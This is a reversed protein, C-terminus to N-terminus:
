ASGLVLVDAGQHVVCQDRIFRVGHCGDIGRGAEACRGGGQCARQHYRREALRLFLPTAFGVVGFQSAGRSRIAAEVFPSVRYVADARIRVTISHGSGLERLEIVEGIGNMATITGIINRIGGVIIVGARIAPSAADRIGQAYIHDGVEVRAWSSAVGDKGVQADPSYHRFVVPDGTELTVQRSAGDGLAEKLRITRNEADVATVVGFASNRALVSFVRKQHEQIDSRKMVLIRAATKAQATDLHVCVRDGMQLYKPDYEGAPKREVTVQVFHTQNSFRITNIDASGDGKIVLAQDFPNTVFVEGLLNCKGQAVAPAALLTVSLALILVRSTSSREGSASM